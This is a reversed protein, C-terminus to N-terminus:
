GLGGGRVEGGAGSFLGRGIVHTIREKLHVLQELLRGEMDFTHLWAVM